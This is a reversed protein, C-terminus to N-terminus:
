ALLRRWWPLSGAARIAQIEAELGDARARERELADRLDRQGAELLRIAQDQRDRAEGAQGRLLAAEARLAEREVESVRLAARAEALELRAAHERAQARLLGELREVEARDPAPPDEPRQLTAPPAPREGEPSPDPAPHPRGPHIPRGSIVMRARLESLSVLTPANPLPNGEPKWATLEGDRIWERLTSVSRDVQRAAERLPALDAPRPGTPTPRADPACDPDPPM